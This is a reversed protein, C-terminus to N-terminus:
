LSCGGLGDTDAVTIASTGSRGSSDLVTITVTRPGGSITKTNDNPDVLTLSCTNGGSLTIAYATGDARLKVPIGPILLTNNSTFVNLQSSAAVGYVNLTINPTNANEPISLLNPSIRLVDQGLKITMSINASQNNSDVVLIGAATALRNGVMEVQNGNVIQADVSVGDIPVLARYPPTGGTILSTVKDGLYVTFDNPTVALKLAGVTVSTTLVQKPSSSDLLTITVATDGAVDLRLAKITLDNGNAVASVFSPNSSVATYPPTGGGMRYTTATMEGPAIKLSGPATTFFATSSGATVNIRFFSGKADQATVIAKGAQVTGVALVEDSILWGVAIAPDSSFVSYPKVGGSITYNQIAGVRLTVDAPAVVSFTSAPGLGLGPSGGGGGCAALLVAILFTFLYSLFRM